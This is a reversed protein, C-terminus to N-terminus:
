YVLGKGEKILQLSNSAREFSTNVLLVRITSAHM